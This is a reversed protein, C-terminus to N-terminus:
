TFELLQDQERDELKPVTGESDGNAFLDLLARTSLHRGPRNVRREPAQLVTCEDRRAYALGRRAACPPRPLVVRELRGTRFCQELGVGRDLRHGTVENGLEM